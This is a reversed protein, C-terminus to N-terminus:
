IVLFSIALFGLPLWLAQLSHARGTLNNCCFILLIICAFILPLAVSLSCNSYQIICYYVILRAQTELWQTLYNERWSQVKRKRSKAPTLFISTNEEVKSFTSLIQSAKLGVALAFRTLNGDGNKQVEAFEPSLFINKLYLYIYIVILM